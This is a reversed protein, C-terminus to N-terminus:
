TGGEKGHSLAATQDATLRDIHENQQRTVTDVHRRLRRHSLWLAGTWVPMWLASTVIGPLVRDIFWASV